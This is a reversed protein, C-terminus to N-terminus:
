VEVSEIQGLKAALVLQLALNANKKKVDIFTSGSLYHLKSMNFFIALSLKVHDLDFYYSRSKLAM